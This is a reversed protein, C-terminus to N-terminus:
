TRKATTVLSATLVPAPIRISEMSARGETRVHTASAIMKTRKVTTVLSAPLVTAPICITEM